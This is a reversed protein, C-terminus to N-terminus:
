SRHRRLQIQVQRQPPSVTRTPPAPLPANAPSEGVPCDLAERILDRRHMLGSRRSHLSHLERLADSWAATHSGARDCDGIFQALVGCRAETEKLAQGVLEDALRLADEQTMESMVM